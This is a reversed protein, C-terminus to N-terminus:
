TYGGVRRRTEGVGAIVVDEGNSRPIQVDPSRQVTVRRWIARSKRRHGSVVRPVAIHRKAIDLSLGNNPPGTICPAVTHDPARRQDRTVAHNPARIYNPACARGGTQVNNPAGAHDPAGAYRHVFCAGDDIVEVILFVFSM